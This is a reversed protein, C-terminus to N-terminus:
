VDAAGLWFFIAAAYRCPTHHDGAAIHLLEEGALVIDAAGEDDPLSLWACVQFCAEVVGKSVKVYRNLIGFAEALPSEEEIDIDAFEVEVAREMRNFPNRIENVPAMRKEVLAIRTFSAKRSVCVSASVRRVKLISSDRGKYRKAATQPLRWTFLVFIVLFCHIQTM